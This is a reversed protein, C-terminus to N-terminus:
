NSIQGQGGAGGVSEFAKRVERLPSDGKQRKVLGPVDLLAKIAREVVAREPPRERFPLGGNGISPTRMSGGPPPATGARGTLAGGTTARTSPSGTSGPTAPDTHSGPGPRDAHDPLPWLGVSSAPGWALQRVAVPTCTGLAAFREYFPLTLLQKDRVGEEESTQTAIVHYCPQSVSDVIGGLLSPAAPSRPKVPRPKPPSLDATNTAIIVKKEYEGRSDVM